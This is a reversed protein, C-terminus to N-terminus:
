PLSNAENQLTDLLEPNVIREHTVEKYEVEFEVRRNQARGKATRNDAVPKEQGYGSATLRSPDIGKKVLYAVVAAARDRSLQLNKEASGTNDTHGSINLRYEPNDELVKVIKDMIPYSSKKIVDRGSEFQIGTMARKFINSVERTLEPCGFNAETGRQFPCRDLYDPIGDGDSDVPCGEKDVPVGVPTDPCRDLYDPVGDRDTDVPCGNEDVEVSDPTGPCRDLYDPVGDNDTDVPCGNEDVSVRAPTDPCRDLYDPVGDNDTDVPCGMSDVSVGEPTDPCRDLYDPVGDADTDIPCGVSDVAVGAPTGPCLDYCDHVGDRDEDFECGQRDVLQKRKLGPCQKRLFDMDTDPCRDRYRWVGDNDTDNADRGINWSMGAQINVMQTRNPVPIRQSLGDAGTYNINAWSLPLYDMILFTNFMGARLNLGVGLNGGRGNVFSYSLAFKMWHLPRLNVALTVEDRVHAHNFRLDNVVGFSIKNDLVGYEVGAYFNAYLMSTYAKPDRDIEATAVIDEGIQQLRDAVVSFDISDGPQFDVLGDIQFSGDMSAGIVNRGWRIFGLDTVSASVTLNGIPKYTFGLDIAAGHGAPRWLLSIIDPDPYLAVSSTVLRNQEDVEYSVPLSANVRGHTNLVWRDRTAVFSMDSISTQMDAYGMLYKAKFGFTWKDDIVRMYGISVNSYVTADVGLRNFDFRNYTDDPTGFLALRFVDRPIYAAVDANIGFDFTLYNRRNFRFGFSLINVKAGVNFTVAPKLKRFFRDMEAESSLFTSTIGNRNFLLDNVILQDTGANLYFNPMFVFDFYFKCNPTFAPNMNNRETIEEMFYLTRTNQAVAPLTAAILLSLSIIIHRSKM